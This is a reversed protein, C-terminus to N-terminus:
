PELDDFLEELQPILDDLDSYVVQYMKTQSVIQKIGMFGTAGLTQFNFSQEALLMIAETQPLISWETKAGQKYQPLLIMRPTSPVNMREVSEKPAKIHAITGKATNYNKKGIFAEPHRQAIIDISANKLCIPRCLPLVDYVDKRVITLEDTLLRWPNKKLALEACLTSKGSGPRGAMFICKGNRELCAAHFLLYQNASTFLTWNLGWELMAIAAAAPYPKYPIYGDIEFIVQPRYWRRLGRPYDVLICYDAMVGDALPYDSYLNEMNWAIDSMSSRICVAFPGMKVRLGDSRLRARIQASTLSGVTPALDSPM